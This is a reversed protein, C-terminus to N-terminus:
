ARTGPSASVPSAHRRHRRRDHRHATRRDCCRTRRRSRRDHLGRVRLQRHVVVLPPRIRRRGLGAGWSNEITVGYADYGFATITHGGEYSGSVSSYDSHAASVDFFNDYVPIGLVVPKGAAMAAQLTAKTDAPDYGIGLSEYGSIRWHSANAVEAETPLSVYDYDGQTYHSRTDVGQEQAIDFTDSFYTGVNQGDVLQSYTYMPALPAGTRGDHHLYWGMLAYDIAWSVCSSVWGQDGVTPADATLDVSAPM